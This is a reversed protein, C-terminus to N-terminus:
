FMVGGCHYPKTRRAAPWVSYKTGSRHHVTWGRPALINEVEPFVSHDIAEDLTVSIGQSTQKETELKLRYGDVLQKAISLAKVKRPAFVNSEVLAALAASETISNLDIPTFSCDRSVDLPSVFATGPRHHSASWGRQKLIEECLKMVTSDEVLPNAIVCYITKAAGSELQSLYEIVLERALKLADRKQRDFINTKIADTLEDSSPVYYDSGVTAAAVFEAPLVEEDASANSRSDQSPRGNLRVPFDKLSRLLPPVCLGLIIGIAVAILFYFIKSWDDVAITAESGREIITTSLQDM